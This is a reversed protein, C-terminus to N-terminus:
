ALVSVSEQKKIKKVNPELGAAVIAARLTPWKTPEFKFVTNMTAADKVKWNNAVMEAHIQHIQEKTYPAKNGM